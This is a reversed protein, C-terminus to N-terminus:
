LASPHPLGRFFGIRDGAAIASTVTASPQCQAEIVKFPRTFSRIGSAVIRIVEESMHLYTMKTGIQLSEIDETSWTGLAAPETSAPWPLNEDDGIVMVADTSSEELEHSM